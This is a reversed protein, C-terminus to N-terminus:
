RPRLPRKAPVGARRPYQQPTTGIKDIIVLCRTRLGEIDMMSIERLKGGLLDIAKMACNVEEDIQGKKHAIFIGGQRCFPLTLETTTSLNGTARSVVMDFKERRNDHHAIDEARGTLIYVNELDLCSVLHQLFATKKAVSEILVLRIEPLFIKLPVGPMGAGTGVDLLLLDKKIWPENKLPVITTLSDLFHKVQVDEYETIATLNVKKNWEVLEEYYLQFQETQRFNLSLGLQELGYILRKLLHPM